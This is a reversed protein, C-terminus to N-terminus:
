LTKLKPATVACTVEHWIRLGLEARIPLFHGGQMTDPTILPLRLQLSLQEMTKIDLRTLM